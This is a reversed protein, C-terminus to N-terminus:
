HDAVRTARMLPSVAAGDFTRAIRPRSSNPSDRRRRARSPDAGDSPVGAPADHGAIRPTLVQVIPRSRVHRFREATFEITTHMGM